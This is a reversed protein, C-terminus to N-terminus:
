PTTTATTTSVSEASVAILALILTTSINEDKILADTSYELQGVQPRARLADVYALLADRTAAHVALTLLPAEGEQTYQMGRVRVDSVSVQSLINFADTARFGESVALVTRTRSEVRGLESRRERAEQARASGASAEREERESKTDLYVLTYLAAMLVTAVLAVLTILSLAILSASTYIEKRRSARVTPPLLNM